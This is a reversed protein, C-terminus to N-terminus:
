HENTTLNKEFNKSVKERRRRRIGRVAKQPRRSRFSMWGSTSENGGLFLQAHIAYKGPRSIAEVAPGGLPWFSFLSLSLKTGHFCWDFVRLGLVRLFEAGREYNRSWGAVGWGFETGGDGGGAGSRWIEFGWCRLWLRRGIIRGNAIQWRGDGGWPREGGSGWGVVGVGWFVGRGENGQNVETWFTGGLGVLDGLPELGMGEGSGLLENIGVETPVDGEFFELAEAVVILGAGVDLTGNIQFSRELADEIEGVWMGVVAWGVLGGGEFEDLLADELKGQGCGGRCGVLFFFAGELQHDAEKGLGLVGGEAGASEADAFAGDSQLLFFDGGARLIKM